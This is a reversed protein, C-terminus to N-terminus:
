KYKSDRQKAFFFTYMGEAILKKAERAKSLEKHFTKISKTHRAVLDSSKFVHNLTHLTYLERLENANALSRASFVLDKYEQGVIPLLLRQLPSFAKRPSPYHSPHAKTYKALYENWRSLLRARLKFAPLDDTSASSQHITLGLSKTKSTGMNPDMELRREFVKQTEGPPFRASFADEEDSGAEQYEQEEVQEEEELVLEEVEEEESEESEEEEMEVAFAQMLHDRASMDEPDVEQAEVESSSSIVDEEEVQEEEERKYDDHYWDNLAKRKKPKKVKKKPAM